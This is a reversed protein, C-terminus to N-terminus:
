APASEDRGHEDSDAACRRKATRASRECASGADDACGSQSSQNPPPRERSRM